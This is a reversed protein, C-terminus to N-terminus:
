HTNQRAREIYERHFDEDSEMSSKLGKLMFTLVDSLNSAGVEEKVEDLFDRTEKDLIFNTQMKGEKKLQERQLARHKKQALRKAEIKQEETEYMAQRGMTNM